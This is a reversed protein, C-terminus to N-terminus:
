KNVSMQTGSQPKGDTSEPKGDKGEESKEETTHRAQRKAAHTKNAKDAIYIAYEMKDTRPDAGPIVGDKRESYRLPADAPLPEKNTLMRAIADEIRVGEVTTNIKFLSKKIHPRKYSKM